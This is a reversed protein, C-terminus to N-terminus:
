IEERWYGMLLAHDVSRFKAMRRLAAALHGTIMYSATRNAWVTRTPKPLAIKAKKVPIGTIERGPIYFMAVQFLALLLIDPFACEVAQFAMGIDPSVRQVFAWEQQLPKKLSAFVTQLHRREVGALTAVSDRWVEM